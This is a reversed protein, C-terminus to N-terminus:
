RLLFHTIQFYANRCWSAAVVMYIPPFPTNMSIQEYYKANIEFLNLQNCHIKSKCRASEKHKNTDPIFDWCFANFSAAKVPVPVNEIGKRRNHLVNRNIIQAPTRSARESEFVLAVDLLVLAVVDLIVRVGLVAELLEVLVLFALILAAHVAFCGVVEVADAGAAAEGEGGGALHGGVLALVLPPM